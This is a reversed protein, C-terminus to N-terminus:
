KEELAECVARYSDLTGIDYTGEEAIRAYVEQRRVLWSLFHGPADPDNGESLYLGILSAAHATYVYFPPVRLDSRPYQPKEEFDVIKGDSDLVAVGARKLRAPEQEPCAFVASSAKEGGLQIIETLHFRPINDTALVYVGDPPIRGMARLAFQIDGIAGLRDENCTTGDNLIQLPKGARRLSAWQEFQEFFRANTVLLMARIERASELADVLYDLIARGGVPLLSKPRNRTLPYLRTAYGGALLVANV